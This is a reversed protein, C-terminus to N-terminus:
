PSVSPASAGPSKQLHLFLLAGAAPTIGPIRMAQGLTAPRVKELREVVERSLGSVGGFSFASPIVRGEHSSVKELLELERKIYGEY